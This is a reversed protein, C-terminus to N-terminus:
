LPIDLQEDPGAQERLKAAESLAEAAMDADGAERLAAADEEYEEARRRMAESMAEAERREELVRADTLDAGMEPEAEACERSLHARAALLAEARAERSGGEGFAEPDAVRAVRLEEETAVSEPEVITRAAGEIVDDAPLASAPEKDASFRNLDQTRAAVWRACEAGSRGRLAFEAAARNAIGMHGLSRARALVAEVAMPLEVGSAGEDGATAAAVDEGGRPLEGEVYVRLGRMVEPVLMHVGNSMARAYFMNRPFKVHNSKEGSATPATLNARLSDELTWRSVGRSKGDVTFRIACGVTERLDAPDDDEAAVVERPGGTPDTETGQARVWFVEFSYGECQRVKSAHLNASAEIKGKIVNLSSMAEFPTLGLDRGALIKTFAQGAQKVDKFLGGEAFARATRYAAAVEADNMPPLPRLEERTEDRVAVATSPDDTM